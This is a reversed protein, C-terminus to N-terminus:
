VARAGRAFAAEVLTAGDFREGSLAFFVEGPRLSRTDTSVGTLARGRLEPALEAGVLDALTGLDIADM